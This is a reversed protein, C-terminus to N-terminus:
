AFGKEADFEAKAVQDSHANSNYFNVESQFDDDDQQLRDEVIQDGFDAAASIGKRPMNRLYSNM